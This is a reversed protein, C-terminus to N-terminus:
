LRALLEAKKADFDEATVFGKDRLEGLREIQAFVEDASPRAAPPPGPQQLQRPPQQQQPMGSAQGNYNIQQTNQFRHEAQRARRCHENIADVGARHEPLDQLLVLEVSNRRQVHVRINGVGRSKQVMSQMADVDIIHALPVQQM